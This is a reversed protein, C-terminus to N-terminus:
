TGVVAVMGIEGKIWELRETKAYNFVAKKTIINLSSQMEDDIKNMWDEINGEPKVPAEFAYEEGEDSVM